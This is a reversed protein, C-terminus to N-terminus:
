AISRAETSDPAVPPRAPWHRVCWRIIPVSVVAAPVIALEIWWTSITAVKGSLLFLGAIGDIGTMLVFGWWFYRWRGTAVTLLTLARSATHCLIAIVREIPGALWALPTLAAVQTSQAVLADPARGSILLVAAGAAVLGLVLAEFAGAGVGVAVARPADAAMKRWLLAAALTVGIEFIGTLLGIYVASTLSYAVPPLSQKLAKLVPGNALLACGIKLAVGVTWVAAGIWFWRWFAKSRARWYFVSALAVLIMAPGTILDLRFASAPLLPCVQAKWEGVAGATVAELQFTGATQVPVSAELTLSGGTSEERLVTSNPDLIRLTLQGATLTVKIDFYLKTQSQSVVFPFSRTSSEPEPGPHENLNVFAPQARVPACALLVAALTWAWRRSFTLSGISRKGSM